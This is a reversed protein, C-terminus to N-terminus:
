RFFARQTVDALFTALCRNVAAPADVIGFHGAGGIIQIRADPVHRGIIEFWPNTAHTHAPVRVRNANLYTSQLVLLPVSVARLADDLRGADWHAISYWLSELVAEPIRRAREAVLARQSENGPNSTAAVILQDLLRAIGIREVQERAREVAGLASGSALRGGDVLVLARVAPGLTTAAQLVVRAGLGHGLLVVPGLDLDRVLTAVDAGLTPIDFGDEFATSQGHGRLDLALVAHSREFHELQHRWDDHTCLLDHVFILAPEGHGKRLYRLGVSWLM